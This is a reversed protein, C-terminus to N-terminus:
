QAMVPAKRLVRRCIAEMHSADTGCCGGYIQLNPLKSRLKHYWSALEPKDGADLEEAEDLEAHSKCSANARIGMIRNAGSGLSHAFHSPHACNIMYYSPYSDTEGDVFTIADELSEGGPLKGDTEATFSIVVPVGNAMASKVIGLAEDVYNMTLATVVDVGAAKFTSIQPDHYDRADDANMKNNVTYGDSRPGVCGSILIPDVFKEYKTRLSELQLIALRNLERLEAEKYGLKYGWDRNARWTCSELIFGTGYRVALDLYETYYNFLTKQHQPKDILNFAAFHPLDTDKHFILTTELGGDMLVPRDIKIKNTKM